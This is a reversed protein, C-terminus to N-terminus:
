AALKKNLRTADYTLLNEALMREIVGLNDDFMIANDRWNAPLWNADAWEALLRSKLDGDRSMDGLPRSLLHDYILDNNALFAIDHEGMVRATCVVITHGEDRYRKWVDALPLLSDLAIKEATSNEIWYDLDITNTGPINRYRHKTCIVTGDLDFIMIAM